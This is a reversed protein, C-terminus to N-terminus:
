LAYDCKCFSPGDNPHARIGRQQMSCRQKNFRTEARYYDSINASSWLREATASARPWIRSILNSGDVLESWMAAEGGIVLKKQEDTGNFSLPECYYYQQWDHGYSILDLYWCSSLIARFGKETVNYLEKRWYNEKEEGWSGIWVHVVTDPKLVVGNNFVEEWVIYSRNLSKVIDLAKVMYYSELDEYSQIGHDAMFKTINPNSQWCSFDVEDGGLHFYQDVFSQTVETFFERIFTYTSNKSPDIPGYTGDPIDGSYCETLLGPQGKGWSKTHGPSDFEVV